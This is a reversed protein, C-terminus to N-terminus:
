AIILIAEPSSTKKKEKKKKSKIGRYARSKRNREVNDSSRNVDILNKIKKKKKNEERYGLKLSRLIVRM